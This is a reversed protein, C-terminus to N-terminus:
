PTEADGNTTVEGKPQISIRLNFGADSAAGVLDSIKSKPDQLLQGLHEIHRGPEALLWERPRQPEYAVGEYHEFFEQYPSAFDTNSTVMIYTRGDLSDPSGSLFLASMDYQQEIGNEYKVTFVKTNASVIEGEWGYRSSGRKVYRVHHGILNEAEELKKVKM